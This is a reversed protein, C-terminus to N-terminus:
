VQLGQLECINLCEAWRDSFEVFIDMSFDQVTYFGYMWLILADSILREKLFITFPHRALRFFSVVFRNRLHRSTYFHKPPQWEWSAVLPAARLQLTTLIDM